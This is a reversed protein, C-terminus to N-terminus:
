QRSKCVKDDPATLATQGRSVSPGSVEPPPSSIISNKAKGPGSSSPKPQIVVKQTKLQVHSKRGGYNM